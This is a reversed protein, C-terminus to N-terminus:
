VEGGLARGLRAWGQNSIAKGIFEKFVTTALKRALYEVPHDTAIGQSQAIVMIEREGLLNILYEGAKRVLADERTRSASKSAPEPRSARGVASSPQPPSVVTGDARKGECKKGSCTEQGPPNTKMCKFCSWQDKSTPAAPRTSRTRRDPKATATDISDLVFDSDPDAKPDDDNLTRALVDAMVADDYGQRSSMNSVLDWSVKTLDVGSQTADRKKPAARKAKKKPPADDESQQSVIQVFPDGSAPTCTFTFHTHSLASL